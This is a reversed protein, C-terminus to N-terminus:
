SQDSDKGNPLITYKDPYVSIFDPTVGFIHFEIKEFLIDGIPNSLKLQLLCEKYMSIRNIKDELLFVFPASGNACLHYYDDRPNLSWGNYHLSFQGPRLGNIDLSNITFEINTSSANVLNLTVLLFVYKSKDEDSNLEDFIGKYTRASFDDSKIDSDFTAYRIQWNAIMVRPQRTLLDRKEENQLMRENTRNAKENLFVTAAGLAVTGLFAEFGAIYTILDGSSWTSALIWVGSYWKYIFHVIILPLFFAGLIIFVTAAKHAKIWDLIKSM